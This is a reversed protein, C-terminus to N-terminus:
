YPPCALLTNKGRRLQIKSEQTMAGNRYYQSRCNVRAPLNVFLIEDLTQLLSESTINGNEVAEYMGVVPANQRSERRDLFISQNIEEWQAEFPTSRAENSSTPVSEM